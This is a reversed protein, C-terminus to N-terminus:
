LRRWYGTAPDLQCFTRAHHRRLDEITFAALLLERIAKLNYDPADDSM